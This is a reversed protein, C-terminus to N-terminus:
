HAAGNAEGEHGPRADGIPLAPQTLKEELERIKVDRQILANKLDELAVAQEGVTVMLSGLQREMQARLKPTM